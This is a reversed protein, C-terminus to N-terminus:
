AFYNEGGVFGHDHVLGSAGTIRTRISIRGFVDV